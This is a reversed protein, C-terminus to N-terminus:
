ACGLAQQFGHNPRPGVLGLVFALAMQLFQVPGALQVFGAHADRVTVVVLMAGVDQVVGVQGAEGQVLQMAQALQHQSVPPLQALEFGFQLAGSKHLLQHRQTQRDDQAM